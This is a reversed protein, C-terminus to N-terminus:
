SATFDGGASALVPLDGLLTARQLHSARHPAETEARGVHGFSAASFSPDNCYWGVRVICCRNPLDRLIIM